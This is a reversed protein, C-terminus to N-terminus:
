FTRRTTVQRGPLSVHVGCGLCSLSIISCWRITLVSNRASTVRVSTPCIRFAKRPTPNIRRTTRRRKGQTKYIDLWRFEPLLSLSLSARFFWVSVAREGHWPLAFGNSTGFIDFCDPFEDWPASAAPGPRASVGKTEDPGCGADVGAFDCSKPQHYEYEGELEITPPALQLGYRHQHGEPRMRDTLGHRRGPARVATPRCMPPFLQELLDGRRRVSLPISTRESCYDSSTGKKRKQQRTKAPGNYIDDTVTDTILKINKM